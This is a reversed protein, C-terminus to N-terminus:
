QVTDIYYYKSNFFARLGTEEVEVFTFTFTDSNEGIALTVRIEDDVTVFESATVTEGELNSQFSTCLDKTEPNFYDDCASEVAIDKIFGDVLLTEDKYGRPMMITLYFTYVAGSILGLIIIVRLLKKLM